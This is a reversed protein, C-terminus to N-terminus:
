TCNHACVHLPGSVTGNEGASLAVPPLLSRRCDCRRLRREKAARRSGSCNGGVEVHLLRAVFRGTKPQRLLAAEESALPWVALAAQMGRWRSRCSTALRPRRDDEDVRWRALSAGSMRSGCLRRHRRRPTSSGDFSSFFTAVDALQWERLCSIPSLEAGRHLTRKAHEQFIYWWRTGWTYHGLM